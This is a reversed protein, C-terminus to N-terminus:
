AGIVAGVPAPDVLAPLLNDPKVDVDLLRAEAAKWNSGAQIGTLPLDRSLTMLGVNRRVDAEAAKLKEYQIKTIGPTTSLAGYIRDITTYAQVLKVVVKEPVGKVGPIEDSPDGLFARLTVIRDPGVGWREVVAQVDYLKEPTKGVAPSLMSTRGDVLQFLDKDTSYLINRQGDLLGSVLTAMADDAEEDANWHQHVGVLPLVEKLWEVETISVPMPSRGAKYGEFLAKRRKSSGDWCVHITCGPWKKRLASLSRLFGVYVGTPRGHSDKLGGLGPAYFCRAALNLGDVIINHLTPITRTVPPPESAPGTPPTVSAVLNQGDDISVDEVGDFLDQEIVDIDEQIETLRDLASQAWSWDLYTAEVKALASERYFPRLLVSLSSISLSWHQVKGWAGLKEKVPDLNFSGHHAKVAGVLPLLREAFPAISSLRKAREHLSGMNRPEYFALKMPPVLCAKRGSLDDILSLKSSAGTIAVLPKAEWALVLRAGQLWALLENAQLKPRSPKEAKSVLRLFNRPLSVLAEKSRLRVFVQVADNEPIDEYVIATIQRYPGSTILVTDGVSIGQESEARVQVRLKEIEREPVTAVTRPQGPRGYQMLIAAVFRTNELRRYASDAFTHRIFAYGEVLYRVVKDGDMSTVAAPIFVEAGRLTSRISRTVLDPDEGEAKPGLELVVWDNSM